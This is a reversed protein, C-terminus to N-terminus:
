QERAVPYFKKRRRNAVQSMVSVVLQNLSTREALALYHLQKHLSLPLRVLFRGSPKFEQRPNLEKGTKKM